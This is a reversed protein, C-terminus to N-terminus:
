ALSIKLHNWLIVSGKHINWEQLFIVNSKKRRSNTIFSFVWFINNLMILETLTKPFFNGPFKEGNFSILLIMRHHSSIYAGYSLKVEHYGYTLKQNTTITLM